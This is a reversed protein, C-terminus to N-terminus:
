PVSFPRWGNNTDANSPDIGPDTCVCRTDVGANTCRVDRAANRRPRTCLSTEEMSFFSRVHCAECSMDVIEYLIGLRIWGTSPFRQRSGVFRGRAQRFSPSDCAKSCIQLVRRRPLHHRTRRRVSGDAFGSACSSRWVPFNGKRNSTSHDIGLHMTNSPRLPWFTLKADNTDPKDQTHAARQTGLDM